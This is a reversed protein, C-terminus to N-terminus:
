VLDVISDGQISISDAVTRPICLHRLLGHLDQGVIIRIRDEDVIAVGIHETVTVAGQCGLGDRSNFGDVAVHGFQDHRDLVAGGDGIFLPQHQQRGIVSPGIATTVAPRRGIFHIDEKQEASQVARRDRDLELWGINIERGGNEM